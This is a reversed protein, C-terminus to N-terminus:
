AEGRRWQWFWYAPRIFVRDFAPLTRTVYGGWGKKFRYVGDLPDRRADAELRQMEPSGPDAGQAVALEYRGRADALGWLDWKTVGRERAWQISHWQMLHAAHRELGAPSSGAVLYTGQTGYALCLSAAIVGGEHEALFLAADGGFARWMARYYAPSHIVFKKRQQTALVMAVLDDIEREDTALRVTVGEREARRLSSRHGKSVGRLLEQEAMAIDMRISSRPQLTRDAPKFGAGQLAGVFADAAPDNELVDPELRVFAARRSRALSVLSRILAPDPPQGDASFPGRPVYAVSLGRLSRILIQAASLGDASSLRIPQWGFRQKLEGWAWSQFPPAGIGTALQDWDSRQDHVVTGPELLQELSKTAM